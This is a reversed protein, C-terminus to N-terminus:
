PNVLQLPVANEADVLFNLLYVLAKKADFWWTVDCSQRSRQSFNGMILSGFEFVKEQVISQRAQISNALPIFSSNRGEQTKLRCEEVSFSIM